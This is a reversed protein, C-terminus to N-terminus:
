ATEQTKQYVASAPTARLSTQLARAKESMEKQMAKMQQEVGAMEKVRERIEEKAILTALTDRDPNMLTEGVTGM